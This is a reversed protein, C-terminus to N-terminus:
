GAIFNRTESLRQRDDIVDQLRDAAVRLAVDRKM